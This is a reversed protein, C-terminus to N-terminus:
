EPRWAPNEWVILTAWNDSASDELYGPLLGRVEFGNRLQFSLTPDTLEGAVVKAVYDHVSLRGKYARYGPLLGGAVIGRRGLRRVVEKRAEYLRRGIGRGRVDPHVSIDGGYYWAGQPDHHTYFGGAIIEQFTHDPHQLDFDTLFGSGLGVIRDGLLAVFNGEPFLRAHSLFHERRMREHPALTPYCDIQLQELGEAHEPRLTTILVDREM